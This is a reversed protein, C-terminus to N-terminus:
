KIEGLRSSTGILNEKLDSLLRRQEGEKEMYIYIIFYKETGKIIIYLESILKRIKM